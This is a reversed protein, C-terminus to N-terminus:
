GDAEVEMKRLTKFFGTLLASCEQALIGGTIEAPCGYPEMFINTVSGCSGTLEDRAGYFVKSIRSMIIAGACMPCPELTVYLSCGNLRWDGLAECANNIAEIEAHATSRREKERRNRGSGVVNGGTDSIICGVPTEGEEGAERALSLALRMYYEHDM